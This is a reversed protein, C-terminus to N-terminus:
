SIPEPQREKEESTIEGLLSRDLEEEDDSDQQSKIYNDIFRKKYINRKGSDFTLLLSPLLILNTIMAFLLTTSTLLGLMKTGLFNSGTFIIFGFFLVISTYIMSSGTEYISTTVAKKVNFGNSFLEQRFKALYHISDDVSIGFAISFILATSPKLAIDLYGMLAGTLLLPVLNPVLSILVMRVNRFLAGMILAIMIIAYFLSERLNQILFKNGKIFLLTTGTIRYPADKYDKFEAYPTEVGFIEDAKPVIVQNILSDMKISGIDAVKISLRIQGTSDILRSDQLSLGTTNTKNKRQSKKIYRALKGKGNDTPLDYFDPSDYWLSQNVAKIGTLISNPRACAEQQAIFDSFENVKRLLDLDKYAKPNKTNIVIELPMVGSFNSEFFRLDKKVKSTEPIDDVLYSVGYVKWSGWASVIVLIITLAFVKSRHNHVINNIWDLIGNIGKFELHKLHKHKPDPLYSFVIPILIISVVFTSFVNIGAIYGFEKLITIDAAILVLFGIATTCNTILTVIGIKRIVRSLAKVKNHHIAFEQHYKSLLYVCNPIGIVVIIPPILGTLLSMEYGFIVITGVTWIVSVGIVLIPYIVASFSRFFFFLVLATVLLSAILFMNLEKKVKGSLVTRVYPLGAFHAEELNNETVFKEVRTQISNVIGQRRKSNMYEPILPIVMITAGTEQNLVSNKFVGLEGILKLKEKHIKNLSDNITSTWFSEEYLTTVDFYRSSSKGQGHLYPLTPLAIVGSKEIGEIDNIGQCLEHYSKFTELDYLSSDRFGIVLTNADEGFTERFAAFYKMEQHSKPILEAFKFTMRAQSGLIGMVVTIVGLVILLQLRAKLIFHAIKTWM